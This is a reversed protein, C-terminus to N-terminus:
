YIFCFKVQYLYMYLLGGLTQEWSVETKIYRLSILLTVLPESVLISSKASSELANTIFLSRFLSILFEVTNFIKFLNYSLINVTHLQIWIVLQWM